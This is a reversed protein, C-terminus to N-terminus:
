VPELQPDLGTAVELKSYERPEPFLQEVGDAPVFFTRDRTSQMGSRKIHIWLERLLQTRPRPEDGLLAALAKKPRVLSLFPPPPADVPPRRDAATAIRRRAKPAKRAPPKSAATAKAPKSSARKSKAAKKSRAAKKPKASRRAPAKRVAKKKPARKAKAPAGAKKGSRKKAAKAMRETEGENGNGAGSAGFGGPSAM